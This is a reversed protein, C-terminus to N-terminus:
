NLVDKGLMYNCQYPFQIGFNEKTLFFEGAGTNTVSYTEYYGGADIKREIEVRLKERTCVVKVADKDKCVKDVAFGDISGWQSNELVWNMNYKDDPYSVSTVNGTLDDIFVSINGNELLM